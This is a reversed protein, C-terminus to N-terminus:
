GGADLSFVNSLPDPRDGSLSPLYALHLQQGTRIARCRMILITTTPVM